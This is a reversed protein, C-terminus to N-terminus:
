GRTIEKQWLSDWSSYGGVEVRLQPAARRLAECVERVREEEVRQEETLEEEPESEELDEEPEEEPESKELDEEPESKELDEEPESKELEKERKGM